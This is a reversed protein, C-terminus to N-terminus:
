LTTPNGGKVSLPIQIEISFICISLAKKVLLTARRMKKRKMKQASTGMIM